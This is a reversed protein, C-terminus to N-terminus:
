RGGVRGEGGEEDESAEAARAQEEAERALQMPNKSQKRKFLEFRTEAMRPPFVNDTRDADAIEDHPDLTISALEKETMLLKAVRGPSKRWLEVPIRVEETSGDVFELEFVVPMVIGGENALDVRYFYPQRGQVLDLEWDELSDVLKEFAERDQYTVAFEDYSNYFDLLEPFRDSRKPLDANRIEGLTTPLAEDEARDGAKALEPDGTDLQFRTVNEIALDVHDTTFFWGHWFWDLDVASADELTRFLDAPMPRKFAWRRSYEAFAFDFLER